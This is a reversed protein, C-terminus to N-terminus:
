PGASWDCGLEAQTVHCRLCMRRNGRDLARCKASARWGRPHPSARLAGAEASHCSLCDEERHCSACATVNRRAEGAHRNAGGSRSAWGAPHFARQPDVTNFDTNVRMGVGSREHCGVCFSQARHCASCDPKGRRADVSHTLVYNGPHFEMPKTVGQHCALCMSQDHCATCTANVQRAEQRHDKAFGAAHADGLGTHHPVLSGHAFETELLGGLKALHCDACRREEAGSTHCRLCSAMTPLQRTTALAVHALDGHCTTCATKTHAAHAFKLPSPTLYVREVPLNPQWGAHCARCQAPPAGAVIREPDARDIPHCARCQVETPILNDVASRSQAASPHCTVCTAGRALHKGHSFILPLRQLPYVIPSWEDPRDDSRDDSRGDALVATGLGALGAVIALIALIPLYRALRM